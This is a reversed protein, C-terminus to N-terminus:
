LKWYLGRCRKLLQLICRSISATTDLMLTGEDFLPVIKHPKVKSAPVSLEQLLTQKQKALSAEAFPRDLNASQVNVAHGALQMGSHPVSDSHPDSKEGVGPRM